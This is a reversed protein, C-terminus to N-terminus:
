WEYKQTELADAWAGLKYNRRVLERVFQPFDKAIVAFVPESRSLFYIQGVSDFVYFNGARDCALASPQKLDGVLVRHAGTNFDVQVLKEKSVTFVEGRANAALLNGRSWEGTAEAIGPVHVEKLVKGTEGDLMEIREVALALLDEFAIHSSLSLRDAGAVPVGPRDLGWRSGWSGDGRETGGQM